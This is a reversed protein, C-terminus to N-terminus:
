LINDIFSNFKPARVVLTEYMKLMFKYSDNDHALDEYTMDQLVRMEIYDTDLFWLQKSGSVNSLYMSPICPITGVMTELKIATPVGFPLEANAIDAPRYGFTDIMIKRLDVIVTSSAVALKPRGGDDYAYRVATEVDDYTLAASSLDLQNTTSQQVILGDFQTADSSADGNFILNEELEKMARAKTLVELARADPAGAPGFVQGEQMGSGSPNFGQLMYSPVAAQAPGLVRGVSYLYKISKSRRVYTNDAEQLAADPQGTYAAGKATLVNYDATLGMNTVRSILEVMPTYKRSEDHIRPDLSVPVMGVGATGTGGISGPSPGFAKKHVAQFGKEFISKLGPRADIKQWPNYYATKDQYRGFSHEYASARTFGKTGIRSMEENMDGTNVVQSSGNINVTEQM